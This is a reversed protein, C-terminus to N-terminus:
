MKVERFNALTMQPDAVRPAEIVPGQGSHCAQCIVGWKYHIGLDYTFIRECMLCRRLMM